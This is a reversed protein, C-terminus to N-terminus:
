QNTSSRITYFDWQILTAGPAKSYNPLTIAKYNDRNVIAYYGLGQDIFCWDDERGESSSASTWQIVPNGNNTGYQRASNM